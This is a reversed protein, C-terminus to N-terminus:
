DTAPRYRGIAAVLEGFGGQDEKEGRLLWAGLEEDSRELLRGFREREPATMADYHADFFGLLLLDLELLGRRCRWRRRRRLAEDNM